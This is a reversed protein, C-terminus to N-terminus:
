SPCITLEASQRRQQIEPMTKEVSVKGKNLDVRLLRGAYGYLQAHKTSAM